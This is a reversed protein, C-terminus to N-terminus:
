YNTLSTETILHCTLLSRVSTVSPLVDWASPVAPAFAQPSCDQHNESCYTPSCLSELLPLSSSLLSVFLILHACPRQPISVTFLRTSLALPYINSPPCLFPHITKLFPGAHDSKTKILNTHKHTNM